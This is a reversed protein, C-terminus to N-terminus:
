IQKPLLLLWWLHETFFTSKFFECIESAARWVHELSFTNQFYAAFKRSFLWASSHNWYLQLVVRNFGCKPMPTRRHNQQTNESCRKILVGRSPQKQFKVDCSFEQTLTNKLTIIIIYNKLWFFSWWLQKGTFIAFNRLVAKQISCRRHSSRFITSSNRLFELKVKSPNTCFSKYSIRTWTKVQSLNTSYVKSSKLYSIVYISVRNRM